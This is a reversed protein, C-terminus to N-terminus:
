IKWGKNNKESNENQESKSSDLRYTQIGKEKLEDINEKIIREREKLSLKLLAPNKRLIEKVRIIEKEIAEVQEVTWKDKWSEQKLVQPTEENTSLVKARSIEEAEQDCSKLFQLLQSYDDGSRVKDRIDMIAKWYAKKKDRDEVASCYFEYNSQVEDRDYVLPKEAEHEKQVPETRQPKILKNEEPIIEEKSSNAQSDAEYIERAQKTLENLSNLDDMFDQNNNEKELIRQIIRIFQEQKALEKVQTSYFQYQLWLQNENIKEVKKPPQVLARAEANLRNIINLPEIADEQNKRKQWLEQTALKYQNRKEPDTIVEKFFEFNFKEKEREYENYKQYFEKKIQSREQKMERLNKQFSRKEQDLVQLQKLLHRKYEKSKNIREFLAQRKIRNQENHMLYLMKSFFKVSGSDSVHGLQRLLKPSIFSDNKKLNQFDESIRKNIAEIDNWSRAIFEKQLYYENYSQRIAVQKLKLHNEKSLLSRRLGDLEQEKEMLKESMKYPKQHEIKLDAINKPLQNRNMQEAAKIMRNQAAICREKMYAIQNKRAKKQVKGKLPNSLAVHNGQDTRNCLYVHVHRHDTDHHIGWAFGIKEGPHFKRQFEYMIKKVERGLVEDLNLGSNEVTSFLEDSVSFVMKHGLAGRYKGHKRASKCVAATIAKKRTNNDWKEPAQGKKSLLDDRIYGGAYVRGHNEKTLYSISRELEAHKRLFEEKTIKRLKLLIRLKYDSCEDLYEIDPNKYCTSTKRFLLGYEM